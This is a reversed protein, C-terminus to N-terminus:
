HATWNAPGYGPPSSGCFEYYRTFSKKAIHHEAKAETVERPLEESMSREVARRSPFVDHIRTALIEAQLLYAWRAGFIERLADLDQAGVKAAYAAVKRRWLWANENNWAFRSSANRDGPKYGIFRVVRAGKDCEQRQSIHKSVYLCPLGSAPPAARREAGPGGGDETQGNM